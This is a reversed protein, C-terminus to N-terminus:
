QVHKDRKNLLEPDLRPKSLYSISLITAAVLIMFAFLRPMEAVAIAFLSLVVVTFVGVHFYNSDVLCLFKHGRM